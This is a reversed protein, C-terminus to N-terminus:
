YKIWLKYNNNALSHTGEFDVKGHGLISKGSYKGLTCTHEPWQIIHFWSWVNNCISSFISKKGVTTVFYNQDGGHGMTQIIYNPSM